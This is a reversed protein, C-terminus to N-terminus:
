RLVKIWIFHSILSWLELTLSLFPRIVISDHEVYFELIIFFLIRNTMNDRETALFLFEVQIAKFFIFTNVGALVM